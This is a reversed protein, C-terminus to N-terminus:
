AYGRNKADTWMLQEFGAPDQGIAAAREAREAKPLTWYTLKLESYATAKAREAQYAPDAEKQKQKSEASLEVGALDLVESESLRDVLAPDWEPNEKLLLRSNRVDRQRAEAREAAAQAAERRGAPSAQYEAEVSADAQTQLAARHAEIQSSLRATATPDAVLVELAKERSGAADTLLEIAISVDDAQVPPAFRPPAQETM